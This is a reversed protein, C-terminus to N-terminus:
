FCFKNALFHIFMLFTVHRTWQLTSVRLHVEDIMLNCQIFYSLKNIGVITIWQLDNLYSLKLNWLNNHNNESPCNWISIAKEWEQTFLCPFTKRTNTDELKIKGVGYAHTSKWCGKWWNAHLAMLYKWEFPIKIKKFQNKLFCNILQDDNIICLLMSGLNFIIINIYM